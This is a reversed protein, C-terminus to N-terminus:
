SSEGWNNVGDRKSRDVKDARVEKEGTMVQQCESSLNEIKSSTDKQRSSLPDSSICLTRISSFIGAERRLLVALFSSLSTWILMYFVGSQFGKRM